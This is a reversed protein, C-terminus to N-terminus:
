AANATRDYPAYRIAVDGAALARELAGRPGPALYAALWPLLPQAGGSAFDRAYWQLFIPTRM